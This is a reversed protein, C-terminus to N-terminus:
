INLYEPRFWGSRAPGQALTIASRFATRPLQLPLSPKSCRTMANPQPFLWCDSNLRMCFSVDKTWFSAVTRYFLYVPLLSYYYCFLTCCIVSFLLPSFIFKLNLILVSTVFTRFVSFLFWFLLSLLPSSTAATWTAFLLFCDWPHICFFCYLCCYVKVVPFSSSLLMGDFSIILAYDDGSIWFVIVILSCKWWWCCELPLLFSYIPSFYWFLLLSLM